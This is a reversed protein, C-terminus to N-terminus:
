IKNIEELRQLRKEINKEDRIISSQTQILYALNQAIKTKTIRDHEKDYNKKQQKIVTKLINGYQARDDWSTPM